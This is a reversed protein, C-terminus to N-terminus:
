LVQPNWVVLHRYLSVAKDNEVKVSITSSTDRGYQKTLADRDESAADGSLYIRSEYNMSPCCSDNLYMNVTDWM